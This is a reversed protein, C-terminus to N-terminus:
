RFRTSGPRSSGGHGRMELAITHRGVEALAAAFTDWTSARSFGGHLLVVPPHGPEGRERFALTVGGLAATGGRTPGLDATM